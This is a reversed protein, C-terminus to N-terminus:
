KIETSTLDRVHAVEFLITFLRNWLLRNSGLRRLLRNLTITPDKLFYFPNSNTVKVLTESAQASIWQLWWCRLQLIVTASSNSKLLLKFTTILVIIIKKNSSYWDIRGSRIYTNEPHINHSPWIFIPSPFPYLDLGLELNYCNKKWDRDGFGMGLRANRTLGLVKQTLKPYM